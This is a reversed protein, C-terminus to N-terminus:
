LVDAFGGRTKCFWLYGLWAVALGTLVEIGWLSWDPSHGHLVVARTQEIVPALPNLFMWRRVGAPLSSVPFFVPSLFMLATTAVGVVQGVDRLFVGLSALLWSCGLILLLLPLWVVPLWLVTCPPWGHALMFFLLLMGLSVLAHFLSSILMPLPLIQLPFVVKKVYNVHELVLHPARNVNESFLGYVMLGAFLNLAFDVTGEAGNWRAHFVSGFVFTYVGLMLLPHLFSWALGIVSGRYRGLVERRAMKLILSRHEWLECM